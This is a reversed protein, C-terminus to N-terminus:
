HVTRSGPASFGKPSTDPGGDHNEVADRLLAKVSDPVELTEINLDGTKVQRAVMCGPCESPQGDDGEEGSVEEVDLGLKGGMKRLMELLNTPMPRAAQMPLGGASEVKKTLEAVLLDHKESVVDLDILGMRHLLRIALEAGATGALLLEANLAVYKAGDPGYGRAAEAKIKIKEHLKVTLSLDVAASLAMAKTVEDSM